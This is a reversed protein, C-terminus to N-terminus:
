ELRRRTSGVRNPIPSVNNPVITTSGGADLRGNLYALFSTGDYTLALHTWASYIADSGPIYTVLQVGDGFMYTGSAM